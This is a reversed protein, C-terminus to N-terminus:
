KKGLFRLTLFLVKEVPRLARRVLLPIVIKAVVTRALRQYKRRRIELVKTHRTGIQRRLHFALEFFHHANEDLVLPGPPQMSGVVLGDRTGKVDELLNM